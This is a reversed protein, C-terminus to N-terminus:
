VVWGRFHYSYVTSCIQFLYEWFDFQAAENGVEVNMYRPSKYIGVILGGLKRYHTQRGITPTYLDSVSM